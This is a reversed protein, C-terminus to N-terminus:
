HRRRAFDAVEEGSLRIPYTRLSVGRGDAVSRPLDAERGGFAALVLVLRAGKTGIPMPPLEPLRPIRITERAPIMDGSAPIAFRSTM